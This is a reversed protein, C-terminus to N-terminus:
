VIARKHLDKLYYVDVETPESYDDKLAQNIEEEVESDLYIGTPRNHNSFSEHQLLRFKSLLIKIEFPCDM